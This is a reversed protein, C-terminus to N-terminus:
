EGGLLTKLEECARFFRIRVANGSCGLIEAIEKVELENLLRMKLVEKNKDNKIKEIAQFLMERREKDLIKDETSAQGNPIQEVEVKMEEDDLSESRMKVKERHYSIVRNRIIVNLYRKFADRREYNKLATLLKLFIDQAIDQADQYNGIRKLVTKFTYEYYKEYLEMFADQSGDLYEAIVEDDNKM